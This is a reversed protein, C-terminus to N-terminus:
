SSSGGIKGPQIVVQGGIGVLGYMSSADLRIRISYADIASKSEGISSPILVTLNKTEGPSVTVSDQVQTVTQNQSNLFQATATVTVPFFGVGKIPVTLSAGATTNVLGVSQGGNPNLASTATSALVGVNSYFAAGWTFVSLVEFVIICYGILRVERSYKRKAM